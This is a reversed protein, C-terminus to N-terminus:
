QFYQVPNTNTSSKLVAFTTFKNQLYDAILDITAWESEGHGVDALLLRGDAEFYDHYKLDATVYAQAGAGIAAATLFSGAGGCLAVRHIPAEPLATHKVVALGFNAKLLALFETPAMPEPLTGVMGSGTEPNENLTAVLEYAVEEYPHAKRLAALVAAQRWAPLIVEMKTEPVKEQLGGAQGIAPTSGELPKFTGTGAVQFSCEAYKGITGAGAAYMADAVVASHETPVYTYLKVLNGKKPALVQLSQPLLGMKRAFAHNVGSIINDLNTHLAYIAIDHKIALVLTRQVYHNGAMSKLAGFILPHHAVILNCHNRVAEHVVAETADLTCLVGSCAWNAQGTLLRSNDYSEQLQPAAWAELANLLTAIQIMKIQIPSSPWPLYVSLYARHNFWGLPTM